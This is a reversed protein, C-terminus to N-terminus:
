LFSKEIYFDSLFYISLWIIHHIDKKHLLQTNCTDVHFTHFINLLPRYWDVKMDKKKTFVDKLWSEYAKNYFYHVCLISLFFYKSSIESFPIYAMSHPFSASESNHSLCM